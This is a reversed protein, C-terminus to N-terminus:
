QNTHRHRIGAVRLTRVRAQSRPGVERRLPACLSREHHASGATIEDGQDHLAKTLTHTPHTPSNNDSFNWYIQTLPTLPVVPSVDWFLIIRSPTVLDFNSGPFVKSTDLEDYSQITLDSTLDSNIDLPRDDADPFDPGQLNIGVTDSGARSLDASALRSLNSLVTDAHACLKDWEEKNDSDDFRTAVVDPIKVRRGTVDWTLLKLEPKRVTTSDSRSPEPDGSQPSQEWWTRLLLGTLQSSLGDKRSKDIDEKEVYACMAAFEPIDEGQTNWKQYLSWCAEMVDGCQPWPDIALVKTDKTQAAMDKRGCSLAKLITEWAKSGLQSVREAPSLNETAFETNAHPTPRMQGFSVLAVGPICMHNEIAHCTLWPSDPFNASFILRARAAGERSDNGHFQSTDFVINISSELNLSHNMLADEMKRVFNFHTKQCCNRTKVPYKLFLAHKPSQHLIASVSKLMDLAVSLLPPKGFDLVVPTERLESSPITHTM